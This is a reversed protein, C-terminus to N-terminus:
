DAFGVIVETAAHVVRRPPIGEKTVVHRHFVDVTVGALVEVEVGGLERQSRAISELLTNM